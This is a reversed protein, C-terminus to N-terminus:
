DDIVFMSFYEGKKTITEERGVNPNRAVLQNTLSQILRLAERSSVDIYYGNKIKKVEM